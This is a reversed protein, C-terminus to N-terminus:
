DEVSSARGKNNVVFIVFVAIRQSLELPRHLELSCRLPSFVTIYEIIDM